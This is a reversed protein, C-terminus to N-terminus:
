DEETVHENVIKLLAKIHGDNLSYYAKTGEKRISVLRADKLTKLQHSVLSQSAGTEEMIESVCKEVMCSRHECNGCSECSCQCKSDDILSFMIKLRTADASIKLITEMKKITELSPVNKQKM